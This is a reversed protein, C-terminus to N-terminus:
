GSLCIPVPLVRCAPMLLINVGDSGDLMLRSFIFVRNQRGTQTTARPHNTDLGASACGAPIGAPLGEDVAEEELRQNVKPRSRM